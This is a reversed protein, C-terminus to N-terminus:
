RVAVITCTCEPHKPLPPLESITFVEGNLASCEKCASESTDVWKVLVVGRLQYEALRGENAARMVETRAMREIKPRTSVLDKKINRVVEEKPQRELLRIKMVIRLEESLKEILNTNLETLKNIREMDSLSFGITTKPVTPPM